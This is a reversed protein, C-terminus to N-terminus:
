GKKKINTLACYTQFVCSLKLVCNPRVEAEPNSSVSHPLHFISGRRSPFLVKKLKKKKLLVCYIVNSYTLM